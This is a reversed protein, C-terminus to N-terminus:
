FQEPEFDDDAYRYPPYNGQSSRLPIASQSSVLALLAQGIATREEPSTAELLRQSLVVINVTQCLTRIIEFLSELTEASMVTTSKPTNMTEGKGSDPDTRSCTDGTRCCRSKCIGDPEYNGGYDVHYFLHVFSLKSGDCIM